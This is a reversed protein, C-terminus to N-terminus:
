MGDCAIAANAYFVAERILRVAATQDASAPTFALIVGAMARGAKRISEYRAKTEEDEPAHYMFWNDLQESTM